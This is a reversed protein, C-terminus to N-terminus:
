FYRLIKLCRNQALEAFLKLVPTTVQPDSCWIELARLLVPTYAPFIWEFLMMYSTKNNFAFAIGRLDRVLGILQRQWLPFVGPLFDIFCLKSYIYNSFINVKADAANYLSSDSQNFVSCLNEFSGLILFFIM